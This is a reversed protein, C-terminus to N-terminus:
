KESPFSGSKCLARLCAQPLQNGQQESEVSSRHSKGLVLKIELGELVSVVGRKYSM